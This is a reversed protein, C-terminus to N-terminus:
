MEERVSDIMNKLSVDGSTMVRIPWNEKIGVAQMIQRNSKGQQASRKVEAEFNQLFDLKNALHQRGNKLQPNHACFLLEFDLKLLREITRIQQSISEGTKFFKIKDALYIDGAFLWGEEAVYLCQHDRAHGPSPLMQFTYHETTLMDEMKHLHAIEPRGFFLRQYPLVPVGEAMINLTMPSGFLPIKYQKQVWDANGSHDEHHHTLVCQRIARADLFGELEKRAHRMSTDILLGDILYCNVAITKQGLIQRQARFIEVPGHSFSKSLIM